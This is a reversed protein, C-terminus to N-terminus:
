RWKGKVKQSDTLKALKEDTMTEVYGAWTRSLKMKSSEKVGIEVGLEDSNRKDARKVGM